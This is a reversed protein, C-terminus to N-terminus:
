YTGLQLTTPTTIYFGVPDKDTRSMETLHNYARNLLNTTSGIFVPTDTDKDFFAYCGADKNYARSSGLITSKALDFYADQSRMLEVDILPLSM